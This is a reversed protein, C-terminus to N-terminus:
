LQCLGSAPVTPTSISPPASGGDFATLKGSGACPNMADVYYTPAVGSAPVGSLVSFFTPPTVPPPSVSPTDSNAYAYTYHTQVSGSASSLSADEPKPAAPGYAPSEFAVLSGSPSLAILFSKGDASYQYCDLMASTPQVCAIMRMGGRASMQGPVSVALNTQEVAAGPPIAFPSANTVLGPWSDARM